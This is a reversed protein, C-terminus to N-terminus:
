YKLPVPHYPQSYKVYNKLQKPTVRKPNLLHNEKMLRYVKKRNINYGKKHLEATAKEYGYDIFDPSIIAKIDRVVATNKVTAGDKRLTTSAPKKGLKGGNPRYYYSSRSFDAIQIAKTAKMGKQIYRNVVEKREEM